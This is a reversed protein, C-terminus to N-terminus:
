IIRYFIALQNRVNTNTSTDRSMPPIVTFLTRTNGPRSVTASSSLFSSTQTNKVCYFSSDPNSNYQLHDKDNKSPIFHFFANSSNKQDEDVSLPSSMNHNKETEM